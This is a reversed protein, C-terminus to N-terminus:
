KLLVLKQVQSRQGEIQARLLYVGAALGSANVEVRHVGAPQVGTLLTKVQRGLVDVLEVEVYHSRALTLEVTTRANFPNPWAPSLTLDAPLLPQEEVGNFSQDYYFAGKDAVTDDPDNPLNPNGTDICPSNEALHFDGDDSNLFAPDEEVNGNVGDFEELPGVWNGGSNGYITTYNLETVGMIMSEVPASCSNEAIISNSIRTPSNFLFM